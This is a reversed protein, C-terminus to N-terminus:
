LKALASEIRLIIKNTWHLFEEKTNAFKWKTYPSGVDECTYPFTDAEWDIICSKGCYNKRFHTMKYQCAPCENSDTLKLHMANYAAKKAIRIETGNRESFCYDPHNYIWMWIKLCKKLAERRTMTKRGYNM